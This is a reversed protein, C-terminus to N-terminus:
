RGGRATYGVGVVTEIVAPAGAERLKKRINKVHSDITRELSDLDLDVLTALDARTFVRNPQRALRELLAFETATLDVDRGGAHVRKADCDLEVDASLKLRPAGHRRLLVGVRRMLEAASFPKTVYDDAGLDFGVLREDEQARATLMLFPINRERLCPAIVDGAAGPLGRDVIAADPRLEDIARRAETVSRAWRLEWGERKVYPAITDYIAPDDEVLLLTTMHVM